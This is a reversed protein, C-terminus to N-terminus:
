TVLVHLWNNSFFSQASKRLTFIFKRKDSSYWYKPFIFGLWACECNRRKYVLAVCNKEWLVKAHKGVFNWGNETITFYKSNQGQWSFIVLGRYSTRLQQSPRLLGRDFGQRPLHLLPSLWHYLVLKAITLDRSRAQDDEWDAWSHDLVPMLM